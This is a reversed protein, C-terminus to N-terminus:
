SLKYARDRNSVYMLSLASLYHGSIQGVCDKRAWGGYREGKTPLGAHQHYAWLMRDVDMNLLVEQNKEMATKFPGDLLRVQALPFPQATLAVAQAMANSVVGAVCVVLVALMKMAIFM